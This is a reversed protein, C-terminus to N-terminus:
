SVVEKTVFEPHWGDAWGALVAIALEEWGARTHEPLKDWTPMPQGPHCIREGRCGYRFVEFATQGPSNSKSDTM